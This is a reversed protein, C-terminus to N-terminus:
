QLVFYKLLYLPVTQGRARNHRAMARWERARQPAGHRAMGARNRRTIVRRLM